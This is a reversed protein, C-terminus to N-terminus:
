SFAFMEDASSQGISDNPDPDNL